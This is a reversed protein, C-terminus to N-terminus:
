IELNKSDIKDQTLAINAQLKKQTLNLEALTSSLSSERTGLDNLQAQYENIIRELNKIDETRSSIRSQLEEASTAQAHLQLPPAIFFTLAFLALSIRLFMKQHSPRHSSYICGQRHARSFPISRPVEGARDASRAIAM